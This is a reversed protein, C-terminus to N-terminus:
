CAPVAFSYFSPVACVATRLTIAAVVYIGLFAPALHMQWTRLESESSSQNARVTIAASPASVGKRGTVRATHSLTTICVARQHGRVLAVKNEDRIRITSKVSARVVRESEVKLAAM